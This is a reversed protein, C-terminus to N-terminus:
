KPSEVMITVPGDNVISVKMDAGFVGTQTRIGAAKSMEVFREYMEEAPGPKMAENFSPRRGKKIDAYLTFQSVILLEGKVDMLSLNMKGNEDEFIRLHILKSFVYELDSTADGEGAGLFVLLGKSVSGVIEGEVEVSAELIRQILAKMKGRLSLNKSRDSLTM